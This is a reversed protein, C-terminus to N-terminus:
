KGSQVLYFHDGQEGQQIVLVNAQAEVKAFHSVLYNLQEDALRSLSHSCSLLLLGPQPVPAAAPAHADCVYPLPSSAWQLPLAQLFPCAPM